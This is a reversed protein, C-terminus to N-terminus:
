EDEGDESQKGSKVQEHEEIEEMSPPICVPSIWGLETFVANKIEKTLSEPLNLIFNLPSGADKGIYGVQLGNAMIIYQNHEVEIPGLPSNMVGKHPRLEVKVM